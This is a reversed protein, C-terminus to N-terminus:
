QIVHVAAMVKHQRAVSCYPVLWLSHTCTHLWLIYVFDITIEGGLLDIIFDSQNQSFRYSNFYVEM